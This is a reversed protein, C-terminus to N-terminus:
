MQTGEVDESIMIPPAPPKRPCNRGEDENKKIAVAAVRQVEEAKRWKQEFKDRIVIFGKLHVMNQM